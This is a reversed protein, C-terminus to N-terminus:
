FKLIHILSFLLHNFFYLTNVFSHDIIWWITIIWSHESYRVAFLLNNKCKEYTVTSAKELIQANSTLCGQKIIFDLNILM